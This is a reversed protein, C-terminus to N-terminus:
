IENESAILAQIAMKIHAEMAGLALISKSKKNNNLYEESNKLNELLEKSVSKWNALLIHINEQENLSEYNTEFANHVEKQAHSLFKSLKKHSVSEPIAPVENLILPRM